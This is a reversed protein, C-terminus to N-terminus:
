PLVRPITPAASTAASCAVPSTQQEIGEGVPVRRMDPRISWLQGPASHSPASDAHVLPTAIIVVATALWAVVSYRVHRNGLRLPLNWSSSLMAGVDLM